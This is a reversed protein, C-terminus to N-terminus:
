PVCWCMVRKNTARDTKYHSFMVLGRQRLELVRPTVSNISKSMINSIDHNSVGPYVKIINYVMNQMTGLEPQISEWSELSTEQIM